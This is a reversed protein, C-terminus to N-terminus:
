QRRQRGPNVLKVRTITKAARTTAPNAQKVRIMKTMVRTTAQNAQLMTPAMQPIEARATMMVVERILLIKVKMNFIVTM